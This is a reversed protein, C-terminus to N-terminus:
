LPPPNRRLRAQVDHVDDNKRSMNADFADLPAEPGLNSLVGELMLRHETVSPIACPIGLPSREPPVTRVRLHLIGFGGWWAADVKLFYIHSTGQPRQSKLKDFYNVHVNPNLYRPQQPM